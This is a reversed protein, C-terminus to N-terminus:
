SRVLAHLLAILILTGFFFLVRPKIRYYPMHVRFMAPM